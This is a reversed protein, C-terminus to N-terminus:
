TTAWATLDTQLSTRSNIRQLRRLEDPNEQLVRLLEPSIDIVQVLATKPPCLAGQECLLMYLGQHVTIRLNKRESAPGILDALASTIFPKFRETGQEEDFAALQHITAALSNSLGDDDLDFENL